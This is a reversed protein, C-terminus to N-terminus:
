LTFQSDMLEDGDEVVYDDMGTRYNTIIIYRGERRSGRAVCMSIPYEIEHIHYDRYVRRITENDTYKVMWKGECRMLLRALALHQSKSFGAAYYENSKVGFHPPDCYFLTGPSDYKPICERFDLNEIVVNRLRRNIWMIDAAPYFVRTQPGEVSTGFQGGRARAIGSFSQRVYMYYEAARRPDPPIFRSYARFKRTLQDYMERSYLLANLERRFEYQRDRVCLFLNYLDSNMDNYVETRSPTKNLLLPAGGGFVEVYCEHEPMHRMLEALIPVDGGAYRILTMPKRPKDMKVYVNELVWELFDSPTMGHRRAYERILEAVEARLYISEM